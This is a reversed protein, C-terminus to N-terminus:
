LYLSLNPSCWGSMEGAPVRLAQASDSIWSSVSSLGIGAGQVALILTLAGMTFARAFLAPWSVGAGSAEERASVGAYSQGSMAVKSSAM